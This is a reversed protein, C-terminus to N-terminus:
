NLNLLLTKGIEEIQPFYAAPLPLKERRNTFAFTRRGGGGGPEEEGLPQEDAASPLKPSAKCHKTL